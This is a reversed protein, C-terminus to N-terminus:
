KFQAKIQKLVGTLNNLVEKNEFRLVKKDMLALHADRESDKEIGEPTYHHQGDLEIILKESSCYFDVIYHGISHQRRFKRGCLKKDKLVEWLVLEAETMNKRLNIRIEKLYALNYLKTTM